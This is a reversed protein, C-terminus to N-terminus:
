FFAEKDNRNTLLHRPHPKRTSFVLLDRQSYKEETKEEYLLLTNFVTINFVVYYRYSNIM